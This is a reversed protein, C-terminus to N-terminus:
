KGVQEKCDGKRELDERMFKGSILSLTLPIYINHLFVDMLRRLPALIYRSTRIHNTMRRRRPLLFLIPQSCIPAFLRERNAHLSLASPPFMRRGEAAARCGIVSLDSRRM